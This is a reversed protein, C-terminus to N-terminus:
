PIEECVYEILMNNWSRTAMILFSSFTTTDGQQLWTPILVDVAVILLLLLLDEKDIGGKNAGGGDDFM